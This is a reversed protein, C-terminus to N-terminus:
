QSCYVALRGDALQAFNWIPQVLMWYCMYQYLALVDDSHLVWDTELFRIGPFMDGTAWLIQALVICLMTTLVQMRQIM